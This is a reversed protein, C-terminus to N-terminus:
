ESTLINALYFTMYSELPQCSKLLRARHVAGEWGLWFIQALQSADDKFMLVGSEKGALLYQALKDQWSQYCAQIQQNFSESLLVSEQELNGVLCGRKFHHRAMGDCADQSFQVLRQQYPIEENLLFYDLKSEFYQQYAKLVELGFAEKNSFYHYFSGKPVGVSKLIPEIGSVTFGKETLMAMGARLLALKSDELVSSESKPRGRPRRTNLEVM